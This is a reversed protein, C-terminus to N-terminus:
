AVAREGDNGQYGVSGTANSRTVLCFSETDAGSRLNAFGFPKAGSDHQYLSPVLKVHLVVM